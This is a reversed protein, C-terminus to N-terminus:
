ASGRSGPSLEMVHTCDGADARPRFGLREYVQAAVPNQTRLRLRAFRGRAAGIVHTVLQEGIGLRRYGVLVYLHRM